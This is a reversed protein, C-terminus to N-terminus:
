MCTLRNEESLKEETILQQFRSKLRSNGRIKAAVNQRIKWMQFLLLEFVVQFDWSVMLIDKIYNKTLKRNICTNSIFKVNKLQLIARACGAHLGVAPLITSRCPLGPIKYKGREGV